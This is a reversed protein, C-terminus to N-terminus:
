ASEKTKKALLTGKAALQRARERLRGLIEERNPPPRVKARAPSLHIGSREAPKDAPPDHAFPAVPSLPPSSRLFAASTQPPATLPRAAASHLAPSISDLHKGPAFSKQGTRAGAARRDRVHDLIAKSRADTRTIRIELGAPRPGGAPHHMVVQGEGRFVPTGNTLVIEFRVLEAPRAPVNPLVITSRGLWAFDGEVFEKESAYPRVVRVTPPPRVLDAV